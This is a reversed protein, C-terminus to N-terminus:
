KNKLSELLEKTADEHKIARKLEKLHQFIERDVEHVQGKFVPTGQIWTDQVILIRVLEVPESEEPEFKFKSM